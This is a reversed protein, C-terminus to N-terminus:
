QLPWNPNTLPPLEITSPACGTLAIAALSLIVAIALAHSMIRAYTM